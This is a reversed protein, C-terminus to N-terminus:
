SDGSNHKDEPKQRHDTAQRKAKLLRQLHTQDSLPTQPKSIEAPRPAATSAPEPLDEAIPLDSVRQDQSAQFRKSALPETPKTSLQEKLRKRTLRLRELTPSTVRTPRVMRFVSVIRAAIARFDLAIRRVAVDLLFLIIWIVILPNTLSFASQPFNLGAHDFLNAQAPDTNIIRGGTSAAIQALLASNDSLDRFEQAYPVNVASHALGVVDDQGLKRYRLNVLYSGSAPALFEARYRGPGVQSLDLPLAKMDPSIIQGKIDSFQVFEGAPDVSEVTLTVGRGRVDAFIECDSSLSSKGVWRITQDWFRGFGGWQLWQSAWRSDVSSTFAVCRGLGAQCTALIPDAQDGSLVLQSLGGKPGTLVYGDLAPLPSALGKVTESLSYVMTPSFTKEIIMSRRVVQAEKIFIEPLNMPDEVSYFRGKTVSAIDFLLQTNAGEGIAVTSVSIDTKAMKDATKACLDEDSTQGDTLLIVHKVGAKAGSLAKYAMQMAPGMITGGGAGINRIQKYIDDKEGAPGFPVLWVHTADFVVVGVLDLRSLLRVSAAAAVKCMEVKEGVMSGSRDIVLVLAGKPMQKKQPPDLDVPLIEALPSGIWGGAGFSNPGGVMVLGGGLDTVYRSLMQQQHFSFNGADANVMVIADAEMLKPLQSTLQSVHTYRTQIDAQELAAALPQAAAQSDALILVHGPGSVFTMASARNNQALKDAAPDDPVFVAEFQHMGRSGLPISVTQVNTGPKLRVPAGVADSDPDLDVVRDNLTLLLSGTCEVASSLIFRLTVTQGSRAKTPVALRKLVVERDLSYRLPLVDIPINNAGAIRAVEKLDGSTQNGDSVLLIRTAADPPAIAMALQVGDALNTQLGELTTNRQDLAIQASPLQRIGAAEAVDIVALQDTPLKHEFAQLLLSRAQERLQQPVSQSRDMVTILTLQRSNKAITPRALIVALLLVVLVRLVTAIIRRATPLGGLSRHALWVVPVALLCALLWFPQLFYFDYAPGM